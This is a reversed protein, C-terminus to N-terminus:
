ATREGTGEAAARGTGQRIGGSAPYRAAGSGERRHRRRGAERRDTAGGGPPDRRTQDLVIRPGSIGAGSRSVRQRRPAIMEEEVPQPLNAHIYALKSPDLRYRVAVALGVTLRRADAGADREQKQKKPDDITATTFVNDRIDYLEM